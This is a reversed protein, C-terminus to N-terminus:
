CHSAIPSLIQIKSSRDWLFMHHGIVGITTPIYLKKWVTYSLLIAKSHLNNRGWNPRSRTDIQLSKALEKQAEVSKRGQHCVM